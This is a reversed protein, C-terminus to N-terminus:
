RSAEESPDWKMASEGERLTRAGCGSKPSRPRGARRRARFRSNTKVDKHCTHVAKPALFFRSRCLKVRAVSVNFPHEPDYAWRGGFDNVYTFTVNLDTTVESGTEGSGGKVPDTTNTVPTSPDAKPVDSTAGGGTSSGDQGAGASANGSSNSGKNRTLGVGLGVGLGAALLLAIPVGWLLLKRKRSKAAGPGPFIKEAAPTDTGDYSMLNRDSDFQREALSGQRPLREPPTLDGTPTAM